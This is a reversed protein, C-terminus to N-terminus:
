LSNKKKRVIELSPDDGIKSLNKVSLYWSEPLIFYIGVEVSDLHLFMLNIVLNSDNTNDAYCTTIQYVLSSIRLNFSDAIEIFIDSHTSHHPYALNWDRNRINFDRTMIFVNCINIKTDKLYKLALQHKDSYIDM